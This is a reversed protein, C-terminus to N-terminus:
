ENVENDENSEVGKLWETTRHQLSEGQPTENRENWTETLRKKEVPEGSPNLFSWSADRVLGGADTPPAFMIGMIRESGTNLAARNYVADIGEPTDVSFVLGTTRGLPLPACINADKGKTSNIDVVRLGASNGDMDHVVQLRMSDVTHLPTKARDQRPVDKPSTGVSNSEFTVSEIHSELPNDHQGRLFHLNSSPPHHQPYHDMTRARSRGTPIPASPKPSSPAM